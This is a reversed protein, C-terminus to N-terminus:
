QKLCITMFDVFERTGQKLNKQRATTACQATMKHVAAKKAGLEKETMPAAKKATSTNQAALPSAALALCYLIATIKKM